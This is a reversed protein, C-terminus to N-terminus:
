LTLKNHRGNLKYYLSPLIYPKVIKSFTVMSSSKIYLTERDKGGSQIITDINYKSKLIECLYELDKRSVQFISSVVKSGKSSDNLYWTALALPTLYDGLNRPIIKLNNKYFM